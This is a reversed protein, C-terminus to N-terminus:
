DSPWRPLCLDVTVGAGPASSLRIEGQHESIIRHAITLGMGTGQPKTSFFPDFVLPLSEAPIGPGTDQITIRVLRPELAVTITLAGGLSMAELANEVLIRFVQGMLRVDLPIPPLEGPAQFSVTIGSSALRPALAALTEELVALLDAPALCVEPLRSFIEIEKVITDLRQAATSIEQLLEQHPDAAPIKKRLLHAMGAIIAMPNRVEHAVGQALKGLAALRESQMLKGQAFKLDAATVQLKEQLKQYLRANELAIGIQNAVISVIDLDEETFDAGDKKNLLELVGILRDKAKLPACLIASTTFGSVTDFSAFFRPDQRANNVLLAKETQAVHGAIGEGVKLRLNQIKEAVTGRACCFFLEGADKDLEFISSTEVEMFHEVAALSNDLVERIELSSNILTSIRSITKIKHRLDENWVSM